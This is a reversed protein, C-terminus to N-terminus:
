ATREQAEPLTHKTHRSAQLTELALNRLYPGLKLGIKAAEAELVDKQEQTPFYVRISVDNREPKPSKSQKSKTRM